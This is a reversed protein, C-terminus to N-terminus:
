PSFKETAKGGHFNNVDDDDDDSSYYVSWGASKNIQRVLRSLLTFDEIRSLSFPSSVNFHNNLKPLQLILM